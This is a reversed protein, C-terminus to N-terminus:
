LIEKQYCSECYVKEPRDPAYTTEFENSCGENMCKRHYLIPPFESKLRERYREDYHTNPIPINNELYYALEQPMIKFPRKTKACELIGSLLQQRLEEDGKYENIDDRPQYPENTSNINNVKEQWKMGANIVEDHNKPFFNYAVTENYGFPSLHPPFFEGWEETKQMHEIIKGVLVEYQEKSYQKNLICYEKHKLGVCGFCDHSNHCNDCYIMNSCNLIGSSFLDHHGWGINNCEYSWEFSGGRSDYVNSVQEAFVFKCDLVELGHFVYKANKCNVLDDGICNECNTQNSFEVIANSKILEFKKKMEKIEELSGFNYKRLEQEYEEKTFQRNEICYHKHKLNNCFLCDTCSDLDMCFNCDRCNKLRLSYKCAFCNEIFVCEYCNECKLAFNLEMNNRSRYTRYCYHCDESGYYTVMTMYCNKIGEVYNAFECNETNKNYLAHRPVEHILDNLQEFFPMNFDFERGFDMASWNDKWWEQVSYIKYDTKDPSYISVIEQGTIDCKRKYLNRENRHVARRIDRCQPCLTPAPIEFTKGDFTPSMKKYFELDADTVEFQSSCQRCTKHEPM